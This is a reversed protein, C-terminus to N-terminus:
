LNKIVQALVALLGCKNIHISIQTYTTCAVEQTLPRTNAADAIKQNFYNSELSSALLIALLALTFSNVSLQSELYIDTDYYTCSVPDFTMTNAADAIKQLLAPSYFTLEQEAM